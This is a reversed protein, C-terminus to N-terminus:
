LAATPEKAKIAGNEITIREFLLKYLRKREVPSPSALIQELNSLLDVTDRLDLVTVGTSLPMADLQHSLDDKLALYDAEKLDGMIFLKRARELREEISKRQRTVSEQDPVNQSFAAIVEEQWDDPLHLHRLFQNIQGELVECPVSKLWQGCPTRKDRAPDRYVMGVKRRYQGIYPTGCERCILLAQLPYARKSRRSLRRSRDGKERRLIQCQEFLDEGVLPEHAGAIWERQRGPVRKGYSTYGLYFRNQLIDEITDKGLITNGRRADIRYGANTVM